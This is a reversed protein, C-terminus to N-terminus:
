QRRSRQLIIGLQKDMKPALEGALVGTDTVMKMNALEPLYPLYRSLMAIITRGTGDDNAGPGLTNILSSMIGSTIQEYKPTMRMVDAMAQRIMDMLTEAGAVVERGSEGAGLLKNGMAGFITPSSLLMANDMAKKYWQVSFHPISPPNLSFSGSISFHPLKIKPLSWQFNFFSRMKDIANKIIQKASEIPTTIANKISNWITAVRTKLTNFGNVAKTRINSVATSVNTVIGNWRETISTKIGNVIEVARTKINTWKEVVSKKISDITTIVSTKTNTWATSIKEKIQNATTTVKTKIENWKDTVTTKISEIKESASTKINNWTDSIRNKIADVTNIVNTKITNWKDTVGNKIKEVVGSVTTSINNWTTTIKTKIGEVATTVNTWATNWANTIWDRINTVTTSIFEWLGKWIGSIAEAVEETNTGFWGLFVDVVGKITDLVTDIIGLIGATIDSVIDSIGQWFGDWDGSFLAAFVSFLDAIADLATGLVTSIVEFAGEFVPALLNCFEDWVKKATEVAASVVEGFDNFSFGIKNLTDVIKQKFGEFKQKLGDWIATMKERFEENNKWLHVFAAAAVAVGAAVGATAPTIHSLASAFKGGAGVGLKAENRFALLKKGLKSFAKLGGGIGSTLKGFAVLAPGIAAVILGIKAITQQQAPTLANFKDVLKQIADSIKQITPALAEGLSTMMVDISSKLKELSGGFGSMMSKAMEETTGKCDRLSKDLDGVDEPATNILALWPAMQNKGFIASAAAIQEAESLDKFKDHLERQITISDKMSGDANTVSWKLKSLAEAAAKPPSVLRAIGTKLSNAAKNADIGNDAMVGLYLAADEISYGASSFIPAAVSMATSLSDVDLASNNCASAFVDAYHATNEFSDHFGNITAVLGASVTDLNGGEGAALNMAPALADAAEKATLGARAFNLTATAADSMGFTSNAAADKMAQNLMQAEEATNGMTKNTLQMTKDVDAFSKVGATGAAVLPLTLRTTLGQGVSSIKGGVNELTEGVDGIKTLAQNSEAAQRALSKLNEETEIIERQIADYQDPPIPNGFEDTVDKAKQKLSELKTETDSIEAQLGDYKEQALNGENMVRECEQSEEKLSGLKDETEKLEAQLEDYKEQSIKGEALQKDAEECEKKLDEYKKETEEIESQLANYKAEAKVGAKIQEDCQKAASKLKGLENETKTIETQIPTFKAKWADYKEASVTVNESAEKLTNLKEKTAEIASTLGEQKQRLLETNKPDLKLLKEVDKLHSQTTKITSNVESLSKQLPGVDGGLEITIGQIRNAM